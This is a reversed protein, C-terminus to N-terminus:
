AEQLQATELRRFLEEYDDEGGRDATKSFMGHEEHAILEWLKEDRLMAM